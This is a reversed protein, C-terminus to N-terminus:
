SSKRRKATRKIWDTPFELDDVAPISSKVVDNHAKTLADAQRDRLKRSDALADTRSGISRSAGLAPNNPFRRALDNAM